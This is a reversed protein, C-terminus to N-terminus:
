VPSEGNNQEKNQDKMNKVIEEVTKDMEDGYVYYNIMEIIDECTNFENETSEDKAEEYVKIQVSSDPNETVQIVLNKM